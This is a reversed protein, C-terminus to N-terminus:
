IIVTIGLAFVACNFWAIVLDSTSIDDLFIQPLLAYIVFHIRVYALSMDPPAVDLINVHVTVLDNILIARFLSM